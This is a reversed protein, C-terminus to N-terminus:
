KNIDKFDGNNKFVEKVEEEDVHLKRAIEGVLSMRIVRFFVSNPRVILINGCISWLETAGIVAAVIDVAWRENTAEIVDIHHGGMLLNELLIIMVLVTAYGSIKAVTARMLESKAYKGQKKAAAIGWIMDLLVAVFVVLIAIKYGCLFDFIGVALAFFFGKVTSLMSNFRTSVTLILDLLATKM